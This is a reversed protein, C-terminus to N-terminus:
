AARHAEQPDEEEPPSYDKLEEPPELGTVNYFAFFDGDTIAGTKYTLFLTSSAAAIYDDRKQAEEKFEAAVEEVLEKAFELQEKLTLVEAEAQKISEQKKLLQAEM